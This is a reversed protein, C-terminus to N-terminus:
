RKEYSAGMLILNLLVTFIIFIICIVIVAGITDEIGGIDGAFLRKRITLIEALIGCACAAFSVCSYLYPRAVPKEQGHRYLVFVPLGFSILISVVPIM